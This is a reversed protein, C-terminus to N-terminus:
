FGSRHVEDTYAEIQICRCYEWRLPDGPDLTFMRVAEPDGQERLELARRSAKRFGQVTLALGDKSEVLGHYRLAEQRAEPNM